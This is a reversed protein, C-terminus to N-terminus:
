GLIGNSVQTLRVQLLQEDVETDKQEDLYNGHSEKRRMRPRCKSPANLKIPWM